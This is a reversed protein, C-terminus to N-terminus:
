KRPVQARKLVDKLAQFGQPPETRRNDTIALVHAGRRQFQRALACFESLNPPFHHGAKTVHAVAATIADRDFPALAQRWEAKVGDVPANAWLDLWQRGFTALM